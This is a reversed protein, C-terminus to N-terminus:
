WITILIASRFSADRSDKNREEGGIARGVVRGEVWVVSYCVM